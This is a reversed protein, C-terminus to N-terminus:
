FVGKRDEAKVLNEGVFVLASFQSLLALRIEAKYLHWVYMVLCEFCKFVVQSWLCRVLGINLDHVHTRDEFTLNNWGHGSYRVFDM